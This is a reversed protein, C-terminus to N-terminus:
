TRRSRNPVHEVGGSVVRDTQSYVVIRRPEIPRVAATWSVSQTAALRRDRGVQSAMRTTLIGISREDASVADHWRGDSARFRCRTGSSIPPRSSATSRAIAPAVDEIRRRAAHLGPHREARGVLDVPGHSGGGVASGAQLSVGATSRARTINRKRSSSCACKSSSAASTVRSCPLVSASARASICRPMSITSNAQPM